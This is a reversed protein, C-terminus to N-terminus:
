EALSFVIDELEWRDKPECGAPMNTSGGSDVGDKGVSYIFGKEANYRFPKGDFPDSPIADIYTPTLDDLSKPLSGTEKQYVRIAALLHVASANCSIICKKELIKGMSPMIVICLMKGVINPRTYRRFKSKDLEQLEKGVDLDMEDYTLAAQSIINRYYDAILARTRNPHFFFSSLSTRNLISPPPTVNCYAMDDYSFKGNSLNDIISDAFQYEGKLINIFGSELPGLESLATSLRRLDDTPTNTDCVLNEAQVLGYTLTALGVLYHITTTADRQVLNSFRLLGICTDTAKTYRGTKREYQAKAALLKGIKFWDSVFSHVVDFNTIAPPICQQYQNGQLILDFTEENLSFTETLTQDDIPKDGLYDIIVETDNTPWDLTNTASLYYTFANEEPPVEILSRELDSTDPAPIDQVAQRLLFLSVFVGLIVLAILSIVFKKMYGEWPM